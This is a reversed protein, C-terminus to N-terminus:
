DKIEIIEWNKKNAEDRLKKDPNVAIPHATRIMLLNDNYSDTYFYSHKIDTGKEKCYQEAVKEKEKGFLIKDFYGTLKGDKKEFTTTLLDDAGIYDAIPKALEYPSNTLIVVLHKEKKHWRIEKLIEKSIHQKIDKDFVKQCFNILEKSSIKELFKLRKNQFKKKFDLKDISYMFSVYSFAVLVWRSIMKKKIMERLYFYPTDTKVLTGDIDFFAVIKNIQPSKIKQKKIKSVKFKDARKSVMNNM